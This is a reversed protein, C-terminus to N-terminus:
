LERPNLNTRDKFVWGGYIKFNELMILLLMHCDKAIFQSHKPNKRDFEYVKAKVVKRSM